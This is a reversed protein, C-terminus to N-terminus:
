NTKNLFNKVAKKVGYGTLIKVGDYELSKAFASFLESKESVNSKNLGKLEIIERGDYSNHVFLMTGNEVILEPLCECTSSEEHEKLDNTPVIHIAM